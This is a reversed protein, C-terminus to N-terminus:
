KQLLNGLAMGLEPYRFSFGCAQLKSPEVRTSALLAADAMEGFVIRALMAPLPLITPRQLIAGLTRTFERNTIPNPSVINLPGALHENTVAFDIARVADGMTIWSWYQEGSGISGGLGLRFPLLMKALAGGQASLVVGFRLQVVRIGREAAPQAAGEWQMAVEALFGTGPSSEETLWEAGRSGYIGVASASALVKPPHRLKQLTECLLRTSRVRSERIAAKMAKTWRGAALNRGALHIVADFGELQRADCLGSDPDWRLHDGDSTGLQRLLRAVQHGEQTFHTTLASGILGASGTILIKM